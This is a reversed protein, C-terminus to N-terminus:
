YGKSSVWIVRSWTRSPSIDLHSHGEHGCCPHRLWPDSCERKSPWHLLWGLQPLRWLQSLGLLGSRTSFTWVIVRLVRLGHSKPRSAAFGCTNSGWLICLWSVRSLRSVGSIKSLQDSCEWKQYGQYGPPSQRPSATRTRLPSSPWGPRWAQEPAFCVVFFFDLNVVM